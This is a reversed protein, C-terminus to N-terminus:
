NNSNGRELEIIFFEQPKPQRTNGGATLKVGSFFKPDRRDFYSYGLGNIISEQM